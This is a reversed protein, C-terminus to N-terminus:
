GNKLLQMQRHARDPTQKAWRSDLGEESAKVWDKDEIAKIMHKFKTFGVLGLQYVMSVLVAKRNSTLDSFWSYKDNLFNTINDVRSQVIYVSEKETIYTLGHGFTAIGLTDLYPKSKFGEEEIILKLASM